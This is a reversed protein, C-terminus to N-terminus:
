SGSKALRANVDDFCIRLGEQLATRPKWGELVKAALAIAPAQGWIKTPHSTEFQIEIPKDSIAVITEAIEGISTLEDTGLNFPEVREVKELMEVSTVIADVVDDVYCYTRTERGSGLVRFPALEPYRAARHCFVPIASGTDLGFDQGPGYAGVIRAVASRLPRGEAHAAAIGQEGILKAWGYSLGPNAPYAQSEKIPPAAVDQQLEIPYVHASSAYFYYPVKAALAGDLVHSDMALNSHLVDLPYKLYYGIGGVKSALHFVVDMEQCAKSALAKDRLDVVQLDIASRYPELTDPRGRELNDAVRVKAGADILRRVLFTGIFGCGGTVLVRKGQWFNM